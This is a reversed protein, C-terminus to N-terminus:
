LRLVIAPSVPKGKSNSDFVSGDDLKGVYRMRVTNGKKAEAGSGPKKDEIKVGGAVERVGKPAENDATDKAPEKKEKKKEKKKKEKEAPPADVPAEAAHVPAAEAADVKPKKSKKEAKLPKKSEVDEAEAELARKKSKPEEKEKPLEPEDMRLSLLYVTRAFFSM